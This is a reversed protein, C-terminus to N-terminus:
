KRATAAEAATLTEFEVTVTQGAKFTVKKAEKLTQGNHDLEARLSYSYDKDKPLAPTDFSRAPWLVDNVYLRAKEPLNVTIRASVDASRDTERAPARLNDFAVQTTEGARVRVTKSEFLTRGGQVTEAKLTYEYTEGRVLNPTTFSKGAPDFHVPQGDAYLKADSPLQVVVKAPASSVPDASVMGTPARGVVPPSMAMGGGGYCGSCGLYGYCGYATAWGACGYGM